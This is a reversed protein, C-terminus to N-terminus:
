WPDAQKRIPTVAAIEQEVSLRGRRPQRFPLGLQGAVCEAIVASMSWGREEAVRRAASELTRDMRLTLHVSQQSAMVQHHWMELAHAVFLGALYWM